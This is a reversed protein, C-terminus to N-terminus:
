RRRGLRYVAMTSAPLIVNHRVSVSYIRRLGPEAALWAFASPFIILYRAGDRRIAAYVDRARRATPQERELAIFPPTVLGVIDVVPRNSLYGIAGVDHTAVPAGSPVHARVWRGLTVQVDDINQVSLAYLNAWNSLSLVSLVVLALPPLAMRWADAGASPGQPGAPGNSRPTGAPAVPAPRTLRGIGVVAWLAFFPDLPMAYRVFHYPLPSLLAQVLLLAVPWAVVARAEAGTRWLAVAGLPALVLVAANTLVTYFALGVVYQLALPLTQPGLGGTKAYFTTPLPHGTTVLAFANYPLVLALYLAVALAITAASPRTRRYVDIGLVVALLYGEPRTLTALGCLAAVLLVRPTPTTLQLLSNSRERSRSGVGAGSAGAAQPSPRALFAALSLAAFLTVEMGSPAAWLLRGDLATLAGTALAAIPAGTLRLALRWALVAAVAGFLVGYVKAALWLPTGLMAAGALVVVWLPSTSGPVPHDPNFSFGHGAALNQAFRFHIYADDLPVGWLNGALALQAQLFFAAGALTLAAPLLGWWQDRNQTTPM